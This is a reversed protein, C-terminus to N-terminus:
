RVQNSFVQLSRGSAIYDVRKTPAQGALSIQHRPCNDARFGPQVRQHETDLSPQLELLKLRQPFPKLLNPVGPRRPQNQLEGLAGKDIGGTDSHHNPGVLVRPLGPHPKEQDTYALLEPVRQPHRAQVLNEIDPLAHLGGKGVLRGCLLLAPNPSGARPREDRPPTNRACPM